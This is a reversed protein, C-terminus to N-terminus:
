AVTRVPVQAHEVRACKDCSTNTCAKCGSAGNLQSGNLERTVGGVGGNQVKREGDVNPWFAEEADLVGRWVGETRDRIQAWLEDNGQVAASVGENIIRELQEVFMLFDRNSWNPIFERRMAGGDLDNEYSRPSAQADQKRSWSWAEYYVKEMAWLIVAGELWPLFASRPTSTFSEFLLEYRTLGLNKMLTLDLGYIQAVEAFLNQERTGNQVAAELWAVLRPEVDEPNSTRRVLALTQESVGKYVALYALDNALWQEVLAKPLTGNAARALFPHRTTRLLQEYNISILYTTLANPIDSPNLNSKAVFTGPHHQPM